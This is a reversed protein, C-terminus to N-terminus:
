IYDKETLGLLNLTDNIYVDIFVSDLEKGEITRKTLYGFYYDHKSLPKSHPHLERLIWNASLEGTTVREIIWKAKERHVSDVQQAKVATQIFLLLPLLCYLTKLNKRNM